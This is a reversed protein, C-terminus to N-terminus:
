AQPKNPVSFLEKLKLHFGPIVTGGDIEDNIELIRVQTASEYVHIRQFRPYLVWVLEVGAAFYELVKAEIETATNTPSVVEGALNPVVKWARPDDLINPPPQWREWRVFAFDPRRERPGLDFLTEIIAFGFQRGFINLHHALFFAVTGAFAGMYPIEVREGNVVEFLADNDPEARGTSQAIVGTAM